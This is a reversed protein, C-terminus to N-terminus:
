HTRWRDTSPNGTALVRHRCVRDMDLSISHPEVFRPEGAPGNRFVHLRLAHCRGVVHGHQSPGFVCSYAPLRVSTSESERTLDDTGEVVPPHFDVLNRLPKPHPCSRDVFSQMLDTRIHARAPNPVTM